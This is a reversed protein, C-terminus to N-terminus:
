YVFKYCYFFISKNFINRFKNVSCPIFRIQKSSIYFHSVVQIANSYMNRKREPADTRVWANSNPAFTCFHWLQHFYCLSTSSFNRYPFRAFNRQQQFKIIEGTEVTWCNAIFSCVCIRVCMYWISTHTFPVHAILPQCTHTPAWYICKYTHAQQSM